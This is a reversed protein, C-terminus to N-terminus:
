GPALSAPDIVRVRNTISRAAAVMEATGGAGDGPRGDWLAVVVLREPGWRTARRLLARNVRAYPSEGSGSAVSKLIVVATLDDQRVRLFRQRWEPGSPDVSGSLFTEEEFPLLLDLRLGRELCVEAFILDGGGAGGCLALDGPAGGWRDIEGAIAAAASDELSSPFRPRPRGPADIMHGTFVFVQRPDSESM